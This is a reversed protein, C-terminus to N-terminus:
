RRKVDEKFLSLKYLVDVTEGVLKDIITIKSLGYQKFMHLELDSIYYMFPLNNSLVDNDFSRYLLIM